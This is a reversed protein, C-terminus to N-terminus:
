DQTNRFLRDLKHIVVVECAKAQVQQLLQQVGPRNLSKGSEGADVIVDLLRYGQLTCYARIRTEQAELSIGESAQGATSVRIYGIARPTNTTGTQQTAM